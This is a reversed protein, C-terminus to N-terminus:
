YGTTPDIAPFSGNALNSAIVTLHRSSIDNRYITKGSFIVLAQDSDVFALIHFTDSGHIPIRTLPGGDVSALFYQPYVTVFKQTPYEPTAFAVLRGKRSWTVSYIDKSCAGCGANPGDTYLHVRRGQPNSIYLADPTTEYPHYSQIALHSGDPEWSDV